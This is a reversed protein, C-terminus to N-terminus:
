PYNVHLYDMIMMGNIILEPRMISTILIDTSSKKNAISLTILEQIEDLNLIINTQLATLLTTNIITLENDMNTYFPDSIGVATELYELITSQVDEIILFPIFNLLYVTDLENVNIIAPSLTQILTIALRNWLTTFNNRFYEDIKSDQYYSLLTNLFKTYENHIYRGYYHNFTLSTNYKFYDSIKDTVDLDDELLSLLNFPVQVNLTNVGRQSRIPKILILSYKIKLSEFINLFQIYNRNINKIISDILLLRIRELETNNNIITRNELLFSSYIKYSDLKHYDTNDPTLGSPPNQALNYISDVVINFTTFSDSYINKNYKGFEIISIFKYIEDTYTSNNPKLFYEVGNNFQRIGYFMLLQFIDSTLLSKPTVIDKILADTYQYYINNEEFEMLDTLINTFYIDINLSLVFINVDPDFETELKNITNEIKILLTELEHIKNNILIQINNLDSPELPIDPNGVITLIIDYTKLLTKIRAKTYKEFIIDISPLEIVLILTNLLDGYKRLKIYTEKGFNLSQHFNVKHEYKSFNTHRRFITKFLSIQPNDSLISDEINKGVLQLIGGTM